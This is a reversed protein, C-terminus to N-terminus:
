AYTFRPLRLQYPAPARRLPPRTSTASEYKWRQAPHDVLSCAGLPLICLALGQLRRVLASNLLFPM